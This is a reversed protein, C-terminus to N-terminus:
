GPEGALAIAGSPAPSLPPAPKFTTEYWARYDSYQICDPVITSGILIKIILVPALTAKIRQQQGVPLKSIRIFEIGRYLEAPVLM